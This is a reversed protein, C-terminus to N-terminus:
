PTARWRSPPSGTWRKFARTFASAESFGLLVSVQVLTLTHNTLYNRALEERVNAVVGHFSTGEVRLRRQVTRTSMGLARAVAGLEPKGTEVARRVEDRIRYVDNDM